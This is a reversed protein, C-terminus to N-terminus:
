FCYPLIISHSQVSESRSSSSASSSSSSALSFSSSSPSPPCGSRCINCQAAHRGKLLIWFKPLKRPFLIRLPLRTTFFLPRGQQGGRNDLPRGVQLGCKPGFSELNSDRLQQDTCIIRSKHSGSLDFVVKSNSFLTRVHRATYVGLEAIYFRATRM